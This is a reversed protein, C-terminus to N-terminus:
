VILPIQVFYRSHAAFAIARAAGGAGLVVFTKTRLSNGPGMASEIATVAAVDTNCGRLTQNDDQLVITNCAGIKECLEDLETAYKLAAEQLNDM